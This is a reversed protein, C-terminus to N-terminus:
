VFFGGIPISGMVAPKCSWREAVSAQVYRPRNIQPMNNEEIPFKCQCYIVGAHNGISLDLQSRANRM